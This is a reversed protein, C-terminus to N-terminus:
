RSSSAAESFSQSFFFFPDTAKESKASGLLNRFGRRGLTSEGFGSPFNKGAHSVDLPSTRVLSPATDPALDQDLIAALPVHRGVFAYSAASGVM